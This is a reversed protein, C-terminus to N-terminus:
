DKEWVKSITINYQVPIRKLFMEGAKRFCDGMFKIATDQIDEVFEVVIEDHVTLLSRFKEYGFPNENFMYILALKTMEASTGQPLTNVAQRKAKMIQRHEDQNRARLPFRLYRRRGLLTCTYGRKLCESSFVDVFEKFVSHIEFYKELFGITEKMSIGFNYAVGRATTGFVTAFNMAKGFKRQNKTVSEFPVDYLDAATAIHLDYNEMFAKVWKPEKSVEALIRLEIQSYDGTAFLYGDRAKFASRYDQEAIINQLNPNESSFRSTMAGLQNYQTHVCGTFVNIYRLFETGFADRKKSQERVNLILDIIEHEGKHLELEKANTTKVNVGFSHLIHKVQYSSGWNIGSTVEHKIEDYTVISKLREREAKRMTKVPIHVFECAQYANEGKAYKDFENFAYIQLDQELDNAKIEARGALEKWKEVDFSVGTYEMMAVVPILPMDIVKFSKWQGKEKLLATLKEKLPLLVAVDLEAYRIQDADFEFDFKDIFSKRTDKEMNIGLYQMSVDALSPYKSGIGLYASVEAIFTDFVNTLLINFNHYIIKLDYGINHGVAIVKREQLIEFIYKLIRKEVAGANIIYNENETSFQVLLLVASHPDLGSAEVDVGIETVSQFVPIQKILDETKDIYM